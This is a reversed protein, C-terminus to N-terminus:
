FKLGSEKASYYPLGDDIVSQKVEPVFLAMKADVQCATNYFSAM